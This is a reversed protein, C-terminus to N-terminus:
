RGPNRAAVLDPWIPFFAAWWQDPAEAVTREFVHAEEQLFATLRERLTGTEPGPIPIREVRGVYRGHRSRRVAALYVPAGTEIALLGPGVPFSAGAGFFEVEIGGGTLDRDGVLGIPERRRLAAALERRAAALTVIRIGTAGRSEEFWAQLGPDDVTEMPVTVPVHARQAVYAAPLEMAGFHLGTFIVGGAALAEDLADPTEVILRGATQAGLTSTRAVEMYYRAAHRFASRVLRELEADDTAARRTRAMALDHDALWTCVRRFNLRGQVAREPALRYWAEGAIEAVAVAVRNPLRSAIASGVRLVRGRLRDAFSLAGARAMVTPTTM